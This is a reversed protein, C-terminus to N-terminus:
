INTHWYVCRDILFCFGFNTQRTDLSVHHTEDATQDGHPRRKKHVSMLSLGSVFIRDITSRHYQYIYHTKVFLYKWPHWTTDPVLMVVFLCSIHHRVVCRSLSSIIDESKRFDNMELLYKRYVVCERLFVPVVGDENIAVDGHRNAKEITVGSLIIGRFQVFPRNVSDRTNNWAFLSVWTTTLRIDGTM